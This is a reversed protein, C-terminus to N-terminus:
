MNILGIIIKIDEERFNEETVQSLINVGAHLEPRTETIWELRHRTTRFLDLGRDRPLQDIKELYKNQESFYGLHDPYITIGHFLLPHFEKLKKDLEEPIKDTLKMFAESRAALTGDYVALM